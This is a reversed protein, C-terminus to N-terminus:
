SNGRMFLRMISAMRAVELPLQRRYKWCTEWLRDQQKLTFAFEDPKAAIQKAYRKDGSGPLYSCKGLATTAARELPTM